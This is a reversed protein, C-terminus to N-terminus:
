KTPAPFLNHLAEPLFAHKFVFGETIAKQSSAKQSAVLVSAMEGFLIKMAFLPVSPGVGKGLTKALVETFHRNSVPYPSVANYAANAKQNEVAWVYLNVMDELHIWSMWQLGGALPGGLGLRFPPLMKELAGGKASLVVGTRIFVKRGPFEGVANEWDVCVKALFDHGPASDENLVEDGRDSYFGVASSSIFATTKQTLSKVLNQTVSIRSDYIKKKKADTWRGSAVPEGALNIVVDVDNVRLDRLPGKNLDGVIVEAPFNLRKTSKVSRSVILVQHKKEVLAKVLAQGILGTAGTILIKM